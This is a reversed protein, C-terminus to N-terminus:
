KSVVSALRHVVVEIAPFSVSRQFSDVPLQVLEVSFFVLFVLLM